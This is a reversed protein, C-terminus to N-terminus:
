EGYQCARANDICFGCRRLFRRLIKSCLFCVNELPHIVTFLLHRLSVLFRTGTNLSCLIVSIQLVTVVLNASFVFCFPIFEPFHSILAPLLLGLLRVQLVEGGRQEAACEGTGGSKEKEYRRLRSSLRFRISAGANRVVSPYSQPIKIWGRPVPHRM